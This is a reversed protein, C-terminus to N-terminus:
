EDQFYQEAAGEEEQEVHGVAAVPELVDFFEDEEPPLADEQPEEDGGASEEGDSTTVAPSVHGPQDIGMHDPSQPPSGGMEDDAAM